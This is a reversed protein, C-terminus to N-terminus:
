QVDESLRLLGSKELHFYYQLCGCEDVLPSLGTLAWLSFSDNEQGCSPRNVNARCRKKATGATPRHPNTLGWKLVM